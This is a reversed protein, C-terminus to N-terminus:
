FLALFGDPGPAKMPGMQFLATEIESDTIMATLKGNMEESVLTDIHQLVNAAANSGESSFLTAYFNVALARMDEDSTCLTGHMM